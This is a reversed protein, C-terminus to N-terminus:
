RAGPPGFRARFDRLEIVFEDTALFESDSLEPHEHAKYWDAYPELEGSYTKYHSSYTRVTVKPAAGALDFEMLRFWGDGLGVPGRMMRDLPQGADLGSQGRDQYDALIQHVDHGAANADVRRAQGHHHGCLVLFIQDNPVVLKQFLQDASNHHLPDVRALDLIPNPARRGEKDLYDHTTLITPVGPFSAMVGRVWDIVRDDAQMELAFHLFRYGGAEFMQASNAGGRFSAVYWPKDAFFRSEAGFLSRFNDLGGIHLMGLDEPTFTLEQPKKKFNPPFGVINWMADYDHNGPAVGFPIGADHILEYGEAAKPIEVEFVKQTPAFHDGFFSKELRELGRAAHDPDLPESQHQWVDGVAAVFAINGGQARGRAAIWGMQEIFQESADIAFGENKQHTYDVYNQTDPIVAIQFPASASADGDSPGLGAGSLAGHQCGAGLLAVMAAAVAVARPRRGGADSISRRHRPSRRPSPDTTGVDDSAPRAASAPAEQSPASARGLCRAFLSLLPM